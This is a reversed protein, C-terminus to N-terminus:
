SFRHDDHIAQKKKALFPSLLILFCLLAIAELGFIYYPYPGLYDLLSPNEPKHALFMYNGGTMRNAIWALAALANIFLFSYVLGRPSPRFQRVFIYFLGIWIILMHSIFFQLFRFHPFGFFLEPTLLAQLAGSIGIFYVWEFVLRSNTALLLLCLVLSISCLQLPLSSSVNWANGYFLWFHYLSETCLLSFFMLLRITKERAKLVHKWVVILFCGLLFIGLAFVHGFSFLEFPYKAYSQHFIGSM